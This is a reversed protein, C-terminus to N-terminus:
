PPPPAAANRVEAVPPLPAVARISEVMSTIEDVVVDPRDWQVYHGADAVGLHRSNTSLAALEGQLEVWTAQMEPVYSEAEPPVPPPLTASLVLIPLDGFSEHAERSQMASTSIARYERVISRLVSSRIRMEM